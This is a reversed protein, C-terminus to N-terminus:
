QVSVQHLRPMETPAALNSEANSDPSFAQGRCKQRPQLSNEDNEPPASVSSYPAKTPAPTLHLCPRCAFGSPMHNVLINCPNTTATGRSAPMHRIMFAPPFAVQIKVSLM